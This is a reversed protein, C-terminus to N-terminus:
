DISFIYEYLPKSTVTFSSDTRATDLSNVYPGGTPYMATTLIQVASGLLGIPTGIRSTVSPFRTKLVSSSAKVAPNLAACRTISSLTAGQGRSLPSHRVHTINEQSDDTAHERNRAQGDEAQCGRHKVTSSLSPARFRCRVGLLAWSRNILM